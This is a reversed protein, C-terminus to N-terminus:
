LEFSSALTNETKGDEESVEESEVGRFVPQGENGDWEFVRLDRVGMAELKKLDTIAADLTEYREKYDVGSTANTPCQESWYINSMNRDEITFHANGDEEDGSLEAVLYKAHELAQVWEFNAGENQIIELHAELNADEFGYGAAKAADYAYAGALMGATWEYGEIGELFPGREAAENIVAVVAQQTTANQIALTIYRPKNAM